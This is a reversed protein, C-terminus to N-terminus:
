GAHHARMREIEARAERLEGRTASLETSLDKIRGEYGDMLARFRATLDQTQAIDQTSERDRQTRERELRRNERGDWWKVIVTVAAVGVTLAGATIQTAWNGWPLAKLYETPDSM